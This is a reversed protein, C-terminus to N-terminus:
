RHTMKDVEKLDKCMGIEPTHNSSKYISIENLGSIMAVINRKGTDLLRTSETVVARRKTMPPKKATRERLTTGRFIWFPTSNTTSVMRFKMSPIKPFLSAAFLYKGNTAEKKKNMRTFLQSPTSGPVPEKPMLSTTCPLSAMTGKNREAFLSRFVVSAKARMETNAM